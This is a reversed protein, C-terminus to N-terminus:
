DMEFTRPESANDEIIEIEVNTGIESISEVTGQSYGGNSFDYFEIENGERVLNGKEIEIFSGADYDYGDWARCELYSGMIM